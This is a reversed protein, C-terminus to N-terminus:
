YFFLTIRELSTPLNEAKNLTDEEPVTFM